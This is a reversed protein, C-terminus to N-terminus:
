LSASREAAVLECLRATEAVAEAAHPVHRQAALLGLQAQAEVGAPGARQQDM